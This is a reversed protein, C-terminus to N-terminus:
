NQANKVEYIEVALLHVCGNTTKDEFDLCNCVAQNFLTSVKNARQHGRISPTKVIYGDKTKEVLNMRVTGEAQKQKKSKNEM